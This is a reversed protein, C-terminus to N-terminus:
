SGKVTAASSVLHLQIESRLMSVTSQRKCSLVTSNVIFTIALTALAAGAMILVLPPIQTTGMAINNFLFHTISQMATNSILDPAVHNLTPIALAVLGALMGAATGALGSKGLGDVLMPGADAKRIRYIAKAYEFQDSTWKPYSATTDSAASEKDLPFLIKLLSLFAKQTQHNPDAQTGFVRKFYSEPTAKELCNAKLGRLREHLKFHKYHATDSKM